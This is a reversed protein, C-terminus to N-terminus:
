QQIQLCYQHEWMNVAPARASYQGFLKQVAHM